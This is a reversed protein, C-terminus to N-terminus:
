KHECHFGPSITECHRDCVSTYELSVCLIHVATPMCFIRIPFVSLTYFLVTHMLVKDVVHLQHFYFTPGTEKLLDPTDPIARDM